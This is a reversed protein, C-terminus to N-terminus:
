LGIPHYDPFGFRCDPGKKRCTKSCTHTQVSDVINKLTQDKPIECTVFRDILTSVKDKNYDATGDIFCKEIEEDKMWACGHIHPALRGQFEVRYNHFRAKLEKNGMVIHKMFSRVRNDFNKTVTLVNERIMVHDDRTKLYEEIPKWVGDVFVTIESPEDIM